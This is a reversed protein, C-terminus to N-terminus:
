WDNRYYDRDYRGGELGDRALSDARHNIDRPIWEFDIYSGDQEFDYVLDM